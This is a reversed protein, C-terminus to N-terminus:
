EPLEIDIVDTGDYVNLKMTHILFECNEDFLQVSIGNCDPSLDRDDILISPFEDSENKYVNLDTRKGLQRYATYEVAGDSCYLIEGNRIVWIGGKEYADYDIGLKELYPFYIDDGLARYNGNLSIVCTNDGIQNCLCELYEEITGCSTLEYRLARDNLYRLHQDWLDYGSSGRRDQVLGSEQIFGALARTVKEAGADNLHGNDRFDTSYDIGYTEPEANFGIYQCGQGEVYERLTNQKAYADEGIEYPANFFILEVGEKRCLNIMKDIYVLADEKIEGCRDTKEPSNLPTSANSGRYGRIYETNNVFDEKEVEKYRSHVIPIRLLMNEAAERGLDNEKVTNLTYEMFRTSFRSTLASRYFSDLSFENETLLFTEVLAVKPKNVAISEQLFYYTADIKQSGASLTYSAIGYDDWLIGNNVTCAAHSSGYIIVDIPVDTSYFNDMGGGSGVNKYRVVDYTGSILFALLAFFVILEVLYSHKKIM